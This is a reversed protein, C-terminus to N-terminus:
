PSKLIEETVLKSSNLVLSIGAGPHVSNGVFFLNTAKRSSFHPRFYNIQTLTPSLGFATGGYANFRNEMDLPTLYSKYEINEEIDELGKINKVEAFIMNTLLNISPERM